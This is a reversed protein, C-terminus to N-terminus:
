TSVITVPADFSGSTVTKTAGNSLTTTGAFTGTAHVGTTGQTNLQFSCNASLGFV